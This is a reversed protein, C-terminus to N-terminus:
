TATEDFNPTNRKNKHDDIWVEFKPINFNGRNIERIIFKEYTKLQPNNLDKKILDKIM